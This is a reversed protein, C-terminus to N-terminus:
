NKLFAKMTLTIKQLLHTYSLMCGIFLFPAFAIREKASKLTSITLFLIKFTFSYALTLGLFRLIHHWSFFHPTFLMRLIFGIFVIGIIFLKSETWHDFCQYLVLYFIYISAFSVFPLQFFSWQHLLPLILWCIALTIFFSDMLIELTDKSFIKPLILNKYKITDKIVYPILFFTGILFTLAIHHIFYFNKIIPSPIPPMLLAYLIFLKADGARWIKTLFFCISFACACLFNIFHFPITPYLIYKIIFILAGMLFFLWLHQNLILHSKIDTYSTIAGLCALIIFFLIDINMLHNYCLDFYSLLM